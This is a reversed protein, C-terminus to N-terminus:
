LKIAGISYKAPVPAVPVQAVMVAATSGSTTRRRQGSDVLRLTIGGVNVGCKLESVRASVTSHRLQMRIAMEEVTAGHAACASVYNYIRQWMGKKTAVIRKHAQESLANRKHRNACIDHAPDVINAAENFPLYVHEAM